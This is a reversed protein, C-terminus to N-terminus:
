EVIDRKFQPNNVAVISAKKIDVYM